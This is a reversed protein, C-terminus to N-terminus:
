ENDTHEKELKERLKKLEQEKKLREKEKQQEINERAKKLEQEKKLREKEKQQEINERLKKLEREQKLRKNEREKDIEVRQELRKIEKNQKEHILGLKQTVEEYKLKCIERIKEKQTRGVVRRKKLSDLIVDITEKPPEIIADKEEDYHYQPVIPKASRSPRPPLRLTFIDPQKLSPVTLPALHQQVRHTNIDQYVKQIRQNEKNYKQTIDETETLYKKQIKSTYKEWLSDADRWTKEWEWTIRDELDQQLAVTREMLRQQKKEWEQETRCSQVASRWEEQMIKKEQERETDPLSKLYTKEERWPKPINYCPDRSRYTVFLFACLLLFVPASTIVGAQQLLTLHFGQITVIIFRSDQDIGNDFQSELVVEVLYTEQRVYIKEHPIYLYLYEMRSSKPSVYGTQTSFAYKWGHPIYDLTLSFVDEHNGQNIITLPVSFFDDQSKEFIREELELTLIHFPAVTLSFTLNKHTWSNGIPQNLMKAHLTCTSYFSANPGAGATVNIYRSEGHALFLQTDSLGYIWNKGTTNVIELEVRRHTWGLAAFMSEDVIRVSFSYQGMPPKVSATTVNAYLEIRYLYNGSDSLPDDDADALTGLQSLIMGTMVIVIVWPTNRM